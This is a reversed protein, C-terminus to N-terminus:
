RMASIRFSPGPAAAPAAQALRVGTVQWRPAMGDGKLELQLTVPADSATLPLEFRTLGVPVARRLAQTAAGQAVGRARAVEALASPNSWAAAIDDAMAGLFASAQDGQPADPGPTLAERVAGQIAALDVHRSLGAADSGDLAHALHWATAYPAGIWGAVLLPLMAFGAFAAGRRPAARNPRDAPAPTTAIVPRRPLAAPAPRPAPQRADYEAWVEDWDMGATVSCRRTGM